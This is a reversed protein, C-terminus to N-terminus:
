CLPRMSRLQVYRLPSLRLRKKVRQQAEELRKTKITQCSDVDFVQGTWPNVAFSGLRPSAGNPMEVDFYAYFYEFSNDYKSFDMKSLRLSKDQNEKDLGLLVLKSCEEASLKQEQALVKSSFVTISLFIVFLQLLGRPMSIRRPGNNSRATSDSRCDRSPIAPTGCMDQFQSGMQFSALSEQIRCTRPLNLQTQLMALLNGFERLDPSRRLLHHVLEFLSPVLEPALWGVAAGIGIDLLWSLWSQGSPDVNGIPNNRGYAYRNWSQPDDPSGALPDASCFTGTRSDYYRALAYDLGSEADRSYSTFVFKNAAGSQYWSEGYPYSGQQSLINGNADTTLRVSLHDQHYYTMAGNAIMALLGTTDGAGNYLYERSPSGPAAGNDYEAIVSSGSFISVTATGQSSKVVRLGNGDYTYSAAGGGSVATMRNEGDYTMYNQQPTLPEITMNGSPDYTYENPRNTTSSNLGSAGFALSSSPGSGATVTESWRNGFRDFSESLGWQPFASSGCSKASAVRQLADYGYSMSRGLNVNDTICQISGNNGQTGTPCPPSYQSSARYSYQLNFYTSNGKTYALYALQMRDPSYYFASSVGNGYTFGILKGPANYSFNAAYYNSEPTCNTASPAIQCIQGVLNYSQYVVRGSPYIIQTVDGGADYQYGTTYTLSNVVKALQTVRGNADHSYSESGTADVMETLRGKAFASAGGQDYYYCVNANPTTGNPTTSCVNPMPAIGKGAPITYAVGTLRNAQDYTYTSVVGRADTRRCVNSPDGSCLVGGSTTYAYFVTGGEPTSESIKRGLGDYAFTRTQSGQIVSTLHDAADYVYNTAIPSSAVGGTSSGPEDVEIIRGFGDLWQQRSNGSEDQSIQPYGYGYVSAPGQQTTTGQYNVVNPGYDAHQSEKDPHLTSTQRDLPDYGFTEVVNNPDGSGSYPHSQTQLRGGSDYTSDM